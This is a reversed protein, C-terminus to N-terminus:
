RRIVDGDSLDDHILSANHLSENIAALILADDANIGLKEAISLTLNSRTRSGGLGMHYAIADDAVSRNQGLPAQEILNEVSVSRDFTVDQVRKTSVM